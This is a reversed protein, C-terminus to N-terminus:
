YTDGQQVESSLRAAVSVVPYLNKRTYHDPNILRDPLDNEIDSEMRSYGSSRAKLCSVTFRTKRKMRSLIWYITVCVMYILPALASLKLLIKNISRISPHLLGALNKSDVMTFFIVLMVIFVADIKTYHAVSTKYPQIVVTLLLAICVIATAWPFFSSDLAFTALFFAPLRSLLPMAAFWRCDRSGPETGDKYCGQFSDMLVKLVPRQLKFIALVRQFWRFPYLLLLLMPIITLLICLVIALIAYPLHDAGFYDVTGDYYLVWTTNGSILDTAATPTLIDLTTYLVKVFSLLFFTAYVDIVTTRINWKRRVLTFVYRFPKWLFVVVKYNRDHFEILAYSLVTLVLPYLAVAYELALLTLTSANLCIEPHLSRFIDLTWISYLAILINFQLQENRSDQQLYAIRVLLPVSISQSFYLYGHLHSFTANIKFFLVIFYFVTLPGFTILIYKWVNKNGEPCSVCRMDYSYALPAHGPLCKGCLRGTRNWKDECVFQNLESLNNPLAFYIQNNNIKDGCTEICEGATLTHTEEEFTVCSCRRVSLYMGNDSCKVEFTNNLSQRCACYSEYCHTWLPCDKDDGCIRKQSIDSQLPSEALELSEMSNMSDSNSLSVTALLSLFLLFYYRNSTAM